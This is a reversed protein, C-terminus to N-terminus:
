VCHFRIDSDTQMMNCSGVLLEGQIHSGLLQEWM